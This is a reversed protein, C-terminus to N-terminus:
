NNNKKLTQRPPPLPAKSPLVVLQDTYNLEYGNLSKQSKPIVSSQV